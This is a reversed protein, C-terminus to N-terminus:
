QIDDLYNVRYNKKIDEGEENIKEKITYNIIENFLADRYAIKGEYM